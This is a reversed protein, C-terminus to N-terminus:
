VNEIIGTRGKASIPTTSACFSLTKKLAKQYARAVKQPSRCPRFAVIRPIKANQLHECSGRYLDAHGFDNAQGHCPIERSVHWATGLAEWLLSMIKRSTNSLTWSRGDNAAWPASLHPAALPSCSYSPPLLVTVCGAKATRTAAPVSAGAEIRSHLQVSNRDHRQKPQQETRTQAALQLLRLQGFAVLQSNEQVPM